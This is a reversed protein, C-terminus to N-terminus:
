TAKTNFLLHLHRVYHAAVFIVICTALISEIISVLLFVNSYVGFIPHSSAWVSFKFVATGSIVLPFTLNSFGPIFTLHLIRFILFIYVCTTMLLALALLILTLLPDPQQVLTLYGALCLNPPAALLAITPKRADEITDHIIIRYLIIPLLIFYSCIGFALLGLAFNHLAPIPVVLCAVVIGIPPVFWSPVLKNFNFECAQFYIFLLLFCIHMLVGVLWLTTGLAPSLPFLSHSLLMLVMAFAPVTSGVTPHKLDEILIGPHRIFKIILPTLIILVMGLGFSLISQVQKPVFNSWFIMTGTIALCLGAIPTPYRKIKSM